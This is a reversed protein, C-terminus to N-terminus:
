HDPHIELVVMVVVVASGSLLFSRSLIPHFRCYYLQILHRRFNGEAVLPM